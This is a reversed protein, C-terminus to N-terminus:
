SRGKNGDNQEKKRVWVLFISSLGLWLGWPEVGSGIGSRSLELLPKGNEGWCGWRKESSKSLM